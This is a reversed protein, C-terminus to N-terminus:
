SRKWPPKVPSRALKLLPEYRRFLEIAETLLQRVEELLARDEDSM